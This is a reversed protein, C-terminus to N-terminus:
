GGAGVRGRGTLLAGAASAKLLQLGKKEQRALEEAHYYENLKATSTM